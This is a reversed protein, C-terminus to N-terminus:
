YPAFKSRDSKSKPPPSNSSKIKPQFSNHSRRHVGTTQVSHGHGGGGGGGGMGPLSSASNLLENLTGLSALGSLSTFLPNSLLKALPPLSSLAGSNSSGSNNSPGNGNGSSERVGSGTSSGGGEGKQAELNAKQLEM